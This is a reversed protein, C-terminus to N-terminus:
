HLISTSSTSIQLDPVCSNRDATTADIDMSYFFIYYLDPVEGCSYNHVSCPTAVIKVEEGGICVQRSAALKGGSGSTKPLWGWAM